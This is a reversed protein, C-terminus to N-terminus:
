TCLIILPHAYKTPTFWHQIKCHHRVIKGPVAQIVIVKGKYLSILIVDHISTTSIIALPYQLDHASSRPTQRQAGPLGPQVLFLLMILCALMTSRARTNAFLSTKRALRLIVLSLSISSDDDQPDLDTIEVQDEGQINSTDFDSM